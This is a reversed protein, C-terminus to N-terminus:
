RRNWPKVDNGIKSNVVSGQYFFAFREAPEDIKLDIVQVEYLNPLHIMVEWPLPKGSHNAEGLRVKGDMGPGFM